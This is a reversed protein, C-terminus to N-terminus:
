EQAEPILTATFVAEGAQTNGHQVTLKHRVKAGSPDYSRALIGTEANCWRDLAEILSEPSDAAILIVASSLGEVPVRYPLRKPKRPM